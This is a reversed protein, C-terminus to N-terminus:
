STPRQDQPAIAGDVHAQLPQPPECAQRILAEPVHVIIEAFATGSPYRARCGERIEEAWGDGAVQLVTEDIAQDVTVNLDGGVAGPDHNALILRVPRTRETSMEAIAGAAPIRAETDTM